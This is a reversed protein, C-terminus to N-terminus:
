GNSKVKNLEGELPRIFVVKKRWDYVADCHLHLANIVDDRTVDHSNASQKIKHLSISVAEVGAGVTAAIGSAILPQTITHLLAAQEKGIVTLTCAPPPNSINRTVLEGLWDALLVGDKRNSTFTYTQREDTFDHWLWGAEILPQLLADSIGGAQSSALPLFVRRQYVNFIAPVQLARILESALEPHNQLASKEESSIDLHQDTQFLQLNKQLNPEEVTEPSIQPPEPAKAPERKPREKPETLMFRKPPKPKATPMSSAQDPSQPVPKPQAVPEEVLSINEPLPQQQTTTETAEQQQEPNFCVLTQELFKQTSEPDNGAFEVNAMRELVPDLPKAEEAPEAPAPKIHGTQEAQQAAAAAPAPATEILVPKDTTLARPELKPQEKRKKKKAPSKEAPISAVGEEPAEYPKDADLDAPEAESPIKFDVMEGALRLRVSVPAPVPDYPFLTDASALKMCRLIMPKDPKDGKQLCDPAVEWYMEGDPSREAISQDVLRMLLSTATRPIAEVQDSLILDIIEQAGTNWAIFVGETTTWVRAGPKNFEWKGDKVLRTMAGTILKIIPVGTMYQPAEGTAMDLKTSKGDALMLPKYLPSEENGVIADLLADLIDEGGESLWALTKPPCITMVLDRSKAVHRMHRGKQWEIYYKRLQNKTAWEEISGESYVWKLNTPQYLVHMDTVAKGTDHLLGCLMGAVNWRFARFSRQSPPLRSDFATNKTCNMAYFAVELGHRLLGGPGCHHHNESAPLLHVFRAYNVLVPKVFEDFDPKTLGVGGLMKNTLEHQLGLLYESSLFAPYGELFPPYRVTRRAGMPLLKLVEDNIAEEDPHLQDQKSPGSSFLRKFIAGIAFPM